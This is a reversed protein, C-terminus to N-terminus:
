TLNNQNKTIDEIIDGNGRDMHYYASLYLDESIEESNTNQNIEDDDDLEEAKVFPVNKKSDVQNEEENEKKHMQKLSLIYNFFTTKRNMKAKENKSLIDTIGYYNEIKQLVLSSIEISQFQRSIINYDDSFLNFPNEGFNLIRKEIGFDLSKSKKIKDDIKNKINDIYNINFENQNAGFIFHEGEYNDFIKHYHEM